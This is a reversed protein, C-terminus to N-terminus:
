DSSIIPQNYPYHLIIRLARRQLKELKETLGRNLASWAPIAYEFHPRIFAKYINCLITPNRIYSSLRKLLFIQSAVKKSVKDVHNDYKLDNSLTFGLHVHTQHYAVPQDEFIILDKPTELSRSFFLGITKNANFHMGWSKGWKSIKSLAMNQNQTIEDTTSVTTQLVTDDAYIYVVSSTNYTDYICDPLDNMFLIFLTPSLVCGQPVGCTVPKWDSLKGEVCVAQSRDSLFDKVWNFLHSRIGYATMKQLIAQHPVTDFAAALDLFVASTSLHSDLSALVRHTFLTLQDTTSHKPLFGFQSSSILNNETLHLLLRVNIMKELLKGVISTVSIPRYMKPDNKSGKNKFIPTVIAKKWERPLKGSRMSLSFITHLPTALSHHCAKLVAPSIGDPGAASNPDLDALGKSVESHSFTIDGLVLDTRIHVTPFSTPCKNPRHTFISNLLNAKDTPSTVPPQDGQAALQPIRDQLNSGFYLSKAMQHWERSNNSRLMHEAQLTYKEKTQSRVHQNLLRRSNQFNGYSVETQLRMHDSWARYQQSKLFNYRADVPPTQTTSRTKPQVHGYM